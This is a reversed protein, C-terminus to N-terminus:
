RVFPNVDFVTVCFGDALVCSTAKFPIKSAPISGKVVVAINAAANKM